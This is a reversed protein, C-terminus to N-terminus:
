AEQVDSGEKLGCVAAVLFWLFLFFSIGPITKLFRSFSPGGRADKLPLSTSLTHALPEQSVGLGKPTGHISSSRALGSRFHPAWSPLGPFPSSHIPSLKFKM